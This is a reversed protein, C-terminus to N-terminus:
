RGSFKLKKEQALYSQVDQDFYPHMAQYRSEAEKTTAYSPFKDWGIQGARKVADQPMVITGDYVSPINYVRNQPGTVSMQYLTPISGDPHTVKGPGYLNTLHQRYLAQEQPTLKLKTNAQQFYHEDM